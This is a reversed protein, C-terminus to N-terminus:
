SDISRDTADDLAKRLYDIHMVENDYELADDDKKSKKSSSAETTKEESSDSV